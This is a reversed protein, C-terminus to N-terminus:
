SILNQGQLVLAIHPVQVWLSINLFHWKYSRLPDTTHRCIRFRVSGITLTIINNIMSTSTLLCLIRCWGFLRWTRHGPVEIVPKDIFFYIFSPLLWQKITSASMLFSVAKFNLLLNWTISFIKHCQRLSDSLSESPPFKGILNYGTARTLKQVLSLLISKSPVGLIEM